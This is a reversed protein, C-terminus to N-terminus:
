EHSVEPFGHTLKQGWDCQLEEDAASKPLDGLSQWRWITTGAEGWIPESEKERIFSEM